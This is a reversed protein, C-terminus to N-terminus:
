HFISRRAGLRWRERAATCSASDDSSTSWTAPYGAPLGTRHAFLVVCCEFSRVSVFRSPRSPSQARGPARFSPRWGPHSRRNQHRKIRLMAIKWGFGRRPEPERFEPVAMGATPPHRCPPGKRGSTGASQTVPFPRSGGGDTMPHRVGVRISFSEMLAPLQRWCRNIRLCFGLASSSRAEPLPSPAIPTATARPRAQAGDDTLPAQDLADPIACHVNIRFRKATSNLDAGRGFGPSKACWPHM